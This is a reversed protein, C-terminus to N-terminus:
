VREGTRMQQALRTARAGVQTAWKSDLMAEAAEDWKKAQMLTLMNHFQLLKAIGMFGMNILIEQRVQDLESYWSLAESLEEGRTSVDNVLLLQIESDSLGPSELNRGVGITPIGLSDRYVTKRVGEDRRLQEYIDM